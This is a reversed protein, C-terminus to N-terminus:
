PFLRGRFTEPFTHPLRGKYQEYLLVTLDEDVGEFERSMVVLGGPFAREIRSITENTTELRKAISNLKELM